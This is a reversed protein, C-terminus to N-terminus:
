FAGQNDLRAECLEQFKELLEASKDYLDIFVKLNIALAELDFELLSELKGQEKGFYVMRQDWDIQVFAKILGAANPHAVESLFDYHDAFPPVQKAVHRILNLIHVSDLSCGAEKAKAAKAGTLAKSLVDRIHDLDQTKISEAVQDCFYWFLAMTEMVARSLLYGSVYNEKVFADYASEALETIRHFCAERLHLARSPDIAKSCGLLAKTPLSAKLTEVIVRIETLLENKSKEQM